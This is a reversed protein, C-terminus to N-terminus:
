WVTGTVLNTAEMYYSSTDANYYEGTANAAEIRYSRVTGAEGKFADTPALQVLYYEVSRGNPAAEGFAIGLSTGNTHLGNDNGGYLVTTTVATPADPVGAPVIFLPTSAVEDGGGIENVGQVRVYYPTGTVLGTITAKTSNNM